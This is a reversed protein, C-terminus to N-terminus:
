EYKDKWHITSHSHVKSGSGIVASYSYSYLLFRFRHMIQHAQLTLDLFIHNYISKPRGSAHKQLKLPLDIYIVHQYNMCSRHSTALDQGVTRATINIIIPM